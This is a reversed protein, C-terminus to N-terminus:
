RNLIDALTKVGGTGANKSTETLQELSRGERQVLMEALMPLNVGTVVNVSDNEMAIRASANFPSAGPLDVLVLVGDGSDVDEIAAEVRAMLGEVDDEERLQVPMLSEKEGVIMRAADM